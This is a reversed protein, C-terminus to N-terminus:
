GIPQFLIFAGLGALNLLAHSAAVWRISGTFRTAWGYVLGLATAAVVAGLLAKPAETDPVCFYVGVAGIAFLAPVLRPIARESREVLVGGVVTVAVVVAGITTVPSLWRPIAMRQELRITM